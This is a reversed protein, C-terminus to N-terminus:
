TVVDPTRRNQLKYKARYTKANLVEAVLHLPMYM